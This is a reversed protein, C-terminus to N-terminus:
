PTTQRLERDYRAQVEAREEPTPKKGTLKETLIFIDEPTPPGGILYLTPKEGM